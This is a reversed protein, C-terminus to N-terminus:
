SWHVLILSVKTQHVWAEIKKLDDTIENLSANLDRVVSFISTDDAFLKPNEWLNKALDNIYVLLLLPALLSSQPVVAYINEWNSIQDKLVVRQKRNRLSDELVNLLNHSIGHWVKDFSKLIDLFVGQSEYGEDM